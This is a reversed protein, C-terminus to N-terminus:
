AVVWFADPVLSLALRTGLGISLGDVYVPTPRKLEFNLHNVRKTTLKPHPLHTGLRARRMALFRQQIGLTGYTIDLLGDNPHARPGLYLDGLWAANMAVLCQGAWGRRRAVLHSVFPIPEAEDVAVFGLDMAFQFNTQPPPGVERGLTKRLDGNWLNLFVPATGLGSAGLAAAEADSSVQIPQVGPDAPREWPKGKSITVIQASTKQPPLMQCPLM